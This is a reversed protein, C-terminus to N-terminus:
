FKFRCKLNIVDIHNDNAAVGMKFDLVVKCEEPLSTKAGPITLSFDGAQYKFNEINLDKLEVDIGNVTIKFKVDQTTEKKFKELMKDLTEKTFELNLVEGREAKEFLKQAEVESISLSISSFFALIFKRSIFVSPVKPAGNLISNNM